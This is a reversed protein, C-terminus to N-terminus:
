EIKGKGKKKPLTNSKTTKLDTVAKKLSQQQEKLVSLEQRTDELLKKSDDTKFLQTFLTIVSISILLIDKLDSIIISKNHNYSLYKFSKTYAKKYGLDGAAFIDKDKGRSVLFGDSKLDHLVENSKPISINFEESIDKSTFEYKINHRNEDEAKFWQKHRKVLLDLIEQHKNYRNFTMYQTITALLYIFVM